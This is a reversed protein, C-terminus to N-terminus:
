IPISTLLISSHNSRYGLLRAAWASGPATPALPSWGCQSAPAVQGKTRLSTTYLLLLPMRLVNGTWVIHTKYSRATQRLSLSPSPPMLGVLPIVDCPCPVFSIYTNPPHHHNDETPSAQLWARYSSIWVQYLVSASSPLRSRSAAASLFKM